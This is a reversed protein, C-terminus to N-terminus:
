EQSDATYSRLAEEDHVVIRADEVSVIGAERLTAIQRNANERSLGLYSGLDRQSLKLDIVIGAATRRGHQEVLRLLGAATRATMPLTNDEVIASAVRLKECLVHVIELLSDSSESLVPLLDRRYLVLTETSELAMASATREGGDLVAIEGVIDGKALFNLVIERGDATVNFIKVRGSQLIMLSDGADGRRYLDAGKSFRRIHVRQALKDLVGAPLGSLFSSQRLNAIASSLEAM